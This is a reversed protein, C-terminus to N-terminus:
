YGMGMGYASGFQGVGPGMGRPQALGAGRSGVLASIDLVAYFRIQSSYFQNINDEFLVHLLMGKYLALRGGVVFGFSTGSDVPRGDNAFNMLTLRGELSVMDQYVKFRSAVDVGVKRGGYGLDAYGDLRVWGRKLDYRGGLNGGYDLANDPTVPATASGARDTLEPMDHFFRVLGKAWGRFSGYRVDYSLRVDDFQNRAFLNWISDGDFTPYSYLYEAQLAHHENITVRTGAEITDLRGILLNYRFGAWPVIMGDLIRYRGQWGLLHETTGDKVKSCNDIVRIDTSTFDCAVAQGISFVRRYSFRADLDGMGFARVNFGVLPKPDSDQPTLVGPATGDPRMIASDIPLFGNVLLGGYVEAAVHIPLKVELSLGDWSLFEHLNFDIQRGLKLDLVGWLDKAGIYAFLMQMKNNAFEASVDRGAIVNGAPTYDGLEFDLRLSSTFYWQNRLITNGFEDKAGLNWVHLGLYQDIRRRSVLAGNGGAIQYGQGVTESDVQFDAARAVAPAVVLLAMVLSPVTRKM